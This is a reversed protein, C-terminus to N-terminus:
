NILFYKEMNKEMISVTIEEFHMNFMIDYTIEFDDTSSCGMSTIWGKEGIPIEIDTIEYDEDHKHAQFSEKVEVSEVNEYKYNM